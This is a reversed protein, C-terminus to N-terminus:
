AGQRGGGRARTTSERRACKREGERWARSRVCWGQNKELAMQDLRDSAEQALEYSEEALDLAQFAKDVQHHHLHLTNNM